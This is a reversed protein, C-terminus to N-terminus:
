RGVVMQQMPSAAFSPSMHTGSPYARLAAPQGTLSLMVKFVYRLANKAGFNPCTVILVHGVQVAVNCDGQPIGGDASGRRDEMM